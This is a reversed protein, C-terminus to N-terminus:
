ILQFAPNNIPPLKKLMCTLVILEDM